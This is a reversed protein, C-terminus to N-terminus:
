RNRYISHPRHIETSRHDGSRKLARDKIAKLVYTGIGFPHAPDITEM